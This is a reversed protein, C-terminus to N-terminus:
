SLDAGGGGSGWGGQDTFATEFHRRQAMLVGGTVLAVHRCNNVPTLVFSTGSTTQDCQCKCYGEPHRQHPPPPPPPMLTSRM